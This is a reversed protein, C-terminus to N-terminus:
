RPLEPLELPSVVDYLSHGPHFLAAAKRRKLLDSLGPLSVDICLHKLQSPLPSAFFMSAWGAAGEQKGKMEGNGEGGVDKHLELLLIM